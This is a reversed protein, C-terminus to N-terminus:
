NAKLGRRYMARVVGAFVLSAISAVFPVLGTVITGGMQFKDIEPENMFSLYDALYILPYLGVVCGAISVILQSQYLRLFGLGKDANRALFVLWGAFFAPLLDFLTLIGGGPQFLTVRMVCSVLVVVFGFAYAIKVSRTLATPLPPLAVPKAEAAEGSESADTRESAEVPGDSVKASESFDSATSRSAGVIAMILGVIVVIAGVPATFFTYWHLTNGIDSGVAAAAFSIALPALGFLCGSGALIGGTKVSNNAMLKEKV